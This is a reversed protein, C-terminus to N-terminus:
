PSAGDLWDRLKFIAAPHGNDFFWSDVVYQQHTGREIIRAGWHVDVLLPARKIRPLVRHFKLWGHRELLRLYATTDISHDICDMRGDAGDDNANGGKDRYTPTQRGAFSEFRGVAQAISQREGAATVDHRFLAHIQQLESHSFTVRAERHCGYNYCITVTDAHANLALCALLVLLRHM